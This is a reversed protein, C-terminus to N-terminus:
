KSLVFKVPITYQLAVVRRNQKAPKWSPMQKIANIAADALGGGIDKAKKVDTVKGEKNVVFTIYVTGELQAERAIAPYKVKSYIFEYMAQPGGPFEAMEEAFLLPTNDVPEEIATVESPLEVQGNGEQTVVGPNTEELEAQAPPPEEVEHEVVVPPTFKVSEQLPPPPEVPPPPPESEDIPPAEALVIEEGLDINKSVEVTELWSLIIPTSLCLLFFLVSSLLALAVVKNYKKRLLYAGYDKNKSEFVLDNRGEYVVDNWDSVFM